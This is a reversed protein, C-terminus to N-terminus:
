QVQAALTLAADKDMTMPYGPQDRMLSLVRQQPQSLVEALGGKQIVWIQHLYENAATRVDYDGSEERNQEETDYDGANIDDQMARGLPSGPEFNWAELRSAMAETYTHFVEEWLASMRAPRWMSSRLATLTFGTGNWSPMYPWIDSKMSMVYRGSQRDISQELPELTRHHGVAFVFREALADLQAQDDVAGDNNADLLSVFLRAAQEVVQEGTASRQDTELPPEDTGVVYFGGIRYIHAFHPKLLAELESNQGPLAGADPHMRAADQATGGADRPAPTTADPASGSPTSCASLILTSVIWVRM